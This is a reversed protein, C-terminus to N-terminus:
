QSYYADPYAAGVAGLCFSNVGRMLSETPHSVPFARHGAILPSHGSVIEAWFIWQKRDIRERRATSSKRAAPSIVVFSLGNCEATRM